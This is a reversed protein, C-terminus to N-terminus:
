TLQRGGCVLMHRSQMGVSTRASSAPRGRSGRPLQPMWAIRPSGVPLARRLLLARAISSISRQSRGWEREGRWSQWSTGQLRQLWCLATTTRRLLRHLSPWYHRRRPRAWLTGLGGRGGSNRRTTRCRRTGPRGPPLGPPLALHDAQLRQMRLQNRPEALLEPARGLLHMRQPPQGPSEQSLHRLSEQRARHHTPSTTCIPRHCPCRPRRRTTASDSKSWRWARPRGATLASAGERAPPARYQGAWCRRRPKSVAQQHRKLHARARTFRSTAPQRGVRVRPCRRHPLRCLDAAVPCTTATRSCPRPLTLTSSHRLWGNCPLGTEGCSGCRLISVFHWSCTHRPCATLGGRARGAIAPSARTKRM